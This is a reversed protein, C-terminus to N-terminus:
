AELQRSDLQEARYKLTAPFLEDVEEQSYWKGRFHYMGNEWGMEQRCMRNFVYEQINEIPRLGTLMEKHKSKKM